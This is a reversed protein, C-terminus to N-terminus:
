IGDHEHATDEMDLTTGACWARWDDSRFLLAARLGTPDLSLVECIWLFSFPRKDASFIWDRASTRQTDLSKWNKTGPQKTGNSVGRGAALDLAEALVACWLNREPIHSTYRRGVNGPLLINEADALIKYTADHAADYTM